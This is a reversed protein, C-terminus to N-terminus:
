LLTLTEHLAGAAAMLPSDEALRRRSAAAYGADIEVGLYRRGLRTAAVGTTADGSFPDLILGRPPCCLTVLKHALDVPMRAPHASPNAAGGVPVTIVTTPRAGDPHLRHTRGQKATNGAGSYLSRMRLASAPEHPTRAERSAQSGEPQAYGRWADASPAFWFVFEHAVTLFAPSSPVQGNPKSWVIRHLLRWGQTRCNRVIDDICPHEEGDRLIVGLNLMLSGAPSCVRLMEATYPELWQMWAAPAASRQARSRANLRAKPRNDAWRGGIEGEVYARQDAFPPSTIIADVSGDPMGRMVELSDGDVVDWTIM